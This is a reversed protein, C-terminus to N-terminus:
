VKIDLHKATSDSLERKFRLMERKNGTLLRCVDLNLELTINSDKLITEALPRGVFKNILVCIGRRHVERGIKLNSLEAGTSEIALNNAHNGLEKDYTCVM